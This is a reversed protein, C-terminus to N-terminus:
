FASQWFNTLTASFAPGAYPQAIGSLRFTAELYTEGQDAEGDWWGSRPMTLALVCGGALVPQTLTHVVPSQLAGTFQELDSQDEFIAKYAGDAMLPGPYIVAPAQQGNVCPTIKLDRHLDLSMSLGRTSPASGTTITWQWGMLPQAATAAYAFGIPDGIGAANQDLIPSDDQDLIYDNPVPPYGNGTAALKVYGDDTITIVLSGFMVGAWGLPGTGDDMTLSWSPWGATPTDPNQAFSHSAQSVVPDGVDHQYYLQTTLPVTYPGGGAPTGAQAYELTDGAGLMLVAGAPPAAALYVTTQGPGSQATFTTTVGPVCTDPGILARLYWGILDPYCDSPVTWQTWWPGQQLDELWTDAGRLATDRLPTIVNRYRAGSSFVVTFQPLTYLAPTTEAALALKAMRSLVSM